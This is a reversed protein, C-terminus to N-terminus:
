ISIEEGDMLNVVEATLGVAGLRKMFSEVSESTRMIPSRPEIGLHIPLVRKPNLDRVANVAGAEGMTMPIGFTTVPMLAIDISYKKSLEKMFSGHYTDGSFYICKEEAEIIFGCTVASHIAPVATIKIGKVESPKYNKLGKANKVGILGKFPKMSYPLFVISKEDLMRFFKRDIHDFHIHSVLAMDSDVYDMRDGYAPHKRRFMPNGRKGFYPDTIIKKGEAEILVTSHGIIKIKM